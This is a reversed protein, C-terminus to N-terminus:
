VDEQHIIPSPITISNIDIYESQDCQLPEMTITFAQSVGSLSDNYFKTLRNYIVNGKEAHIMSRLPYSVNSILIQKTKIVQDLMNFFNMACSKMDQWDYWIYHASQRTSKDVMKISNDGNRYTTTLWFLNFTFQEFDQSNISVIRSRPTFCICIPYKKLDTLGKAPDKIYTELNATNLDNGQNPSLHYSGKMISSQKLIQKFLGAQEDYLFLEQIM